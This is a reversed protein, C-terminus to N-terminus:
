HCLRRHHNSQRDHVLGYSGPLLAILVEPKKCLDNTDPRPMRVAFTQLDDTGGTTSSFLAAVKKVHPNAIADPNIIAGKSVSALYKDVPRRRSM